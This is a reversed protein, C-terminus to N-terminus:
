DARNQEEQNTNERKNMNIKKGFNYIIGLRYYQEDYYNKFTNRIGNSYSTYKIAKPNVIDQINLSIILKKDLLLYKISTDLQFDNSNHDLYYVGKTVAWIETNFFLTKNNNMTIDNSISIEGNWGSLSQLTIPIKSDTKSHYFDISANINWWKSLKYIFSQNIGFVKNVIYNLPIIQEINTTKDLITLQDFNDNTYSYYIKTILNDKYTYGFEYNNTFAPQLFPNGESYSYPNSVHRFPNLYSYSPRKIRKGYNTSFSHNNNLAYSLFFTPFLRSYNNINNQNLTNSFGETKTFEYRLGLKSKWKDSFNKNASIYLAQTNEKYDFQNSFDLDITEINNIIDFYNFDNITKIFSVRGGYNFELFKNPHMMDLNFGINQIEQTGNNKAELPPAISPQYNSLFSETKFVRKTTNKFNFYDFDLTLKRGTTDIDYSIHYNLTNIKKTYNEKGITKIISDLVTTTPNFLNIQNTEKISPKSSTFNYNFGTSFKNNIAYEMRIKTSLIDTYNRRKNTEEWTLNPYFILHKERPANSGNVYNINSILQLKGKQINFAGGINKKAYTAQQYTSRLSANWANKKAKKTVINILGSNGEASYKAPPNSIVEIKKLDDSNISKLYNALEEDSFQILKDDIMVSMNSKGIMSIKDNQVKIRPTRKLADLANGGISAVSNEVNFILRDAKNEILPKKNEITVNNLSLYMNIVINKLDLDSNITILQSYIEESFYNITLQYNGKQVENITFEGNKNTFFSNLQNSNLAKIIIETHEIPFNNEDKVKGSIKHQAYGFFHILFLTILTKRM